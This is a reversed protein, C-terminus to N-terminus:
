DEIVPYLVVELGDPKEKKVYVTRGQTGDQEIHVSFSARSGRKQAENAMEEVIQKAKLLPDKEM